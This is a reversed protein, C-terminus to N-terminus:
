FVVVLVNKGRVILCQFARGGYTETSGVRACSNALYDM